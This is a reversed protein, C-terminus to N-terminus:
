TVRDGSGATVGVLLGDIAEILDTAAPDHAIEEIEAVNQRLHAPVGTGILISTFGTVDVAFRYAAAPLLRTAADAPVREIAARLRDPDAVAPSRAGLETLGDRLREPSTLLWRVAHMVVIGVGGSAPHHLLSRASPNLVNFGTMFVDWFGDDLARHQMAHDPDHAFAETVGIARVKGASRQFALEPGLVEYCHEYEQPRVGHLFFVDVHDTGLSRLSDDLSQRLEEATILGGDERKHRVKTSVVLADRPVEALARGVAQETGYVPATDVYNMGLELAQRVVRVAGDTSGGNRLGLRSAGGAGLGLASVRIGTGGLDRHEM